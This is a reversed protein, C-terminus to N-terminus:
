ILQAAKEELTELHDRKFALEEVKKQLITELKCIVDEHKEKFALISWKVREVKERGLRSKKKRMAEDRWARFLLKTKRTSKLFGEIRAYRPASKKFSLNNKMEAFVKGKMTKRFHQVAVRSLVKSFSVINQGLIRLNEKQENIYEVKVEIAQTKANKMKQLYIRAALQREKSLQELHTNLLGLCTEQM